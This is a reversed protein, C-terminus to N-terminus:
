NILLKLQRNREAALDCIKDALIEINETNNERVAKDLNEIENIVDQEISRVGYSSKIPSGHILDYAKEVKKRIKNDSIKNLLAHLASASEKVYKLDVDHTAISDATYENAILNVLLLIIFIAALTLQALLAVRINEPSNVIFVVGVVLAMFFYITTILFLPRAYDVSNSGKRILVPTIILVLYSLHVSGYSIWVSSPQDTGKLMFFYINFVILFISDLLYWYIKARVM